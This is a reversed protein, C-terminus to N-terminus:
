VKLSRILEAVAQADVTRDGQIPSPGLSWGVVVEPGLVAEALRIRMDSGIFIVADYEKLQAIWEMIRNFLEAGPVDSVFEWREEDNFLLIFDIGEGEAATRLEEKNKIPFGILAIRGGKRVEGLTELRSIFTRDVGLQDAVEQQSHGSMRLELIRDVTSAIRRASVLKDGIRLLELM